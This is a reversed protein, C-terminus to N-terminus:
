TVRFPISGIVAGTPSPSQAFCLKYDGVAWDAPLTITIKGATGNVPIYGANQTPTSTFNFNPARNGFNSSTSAFLGATFGNTGPTLNSLNYNFTYTRDSTTRSLTNPTATGVVPEGTSPAPVAEFTVTVPHSNITTSGSTARLLYSGAGNYPAAAFVDAGFTGTLTGQADTTLTASGGTVPIGDKVWQIPVSANPTFGTLTYTITTNQTISATAPSLAVTPTPAAAPVPTPAPTPTPQADPSIIPVVLVRISGASLVVSGFDVAIANQSPMGGDDIPGVSVPHYEKFMGDQPNVLWFAAKVWETGLGHNVIVQAAGGILETHFMGGMRAKTPTLIGADTMSFEYAVGSELPEPIALVATPMLADDLFEIGQTTTM